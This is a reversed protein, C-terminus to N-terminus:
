GPDVGQYIEDFTLAIGFEPLQLPGEADLPQRRWLREGPQRWFVLAGRRESEVVIYRLISPVSEYEDVKEQEDRRRNERGPSVVEFVIVPAAIAVAGPHPASCAVFADPERLAGGVTEIPQQPGYPRCGMGAPLRGRLTERINRGIDNHGLTAPAMAVPHFGDFEYHADGPQTEAWALYQEKTWVDPEIRRAMVTM